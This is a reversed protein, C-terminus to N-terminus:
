FGDKSKPRVSHGVLRDWLPYSPGKNSDYKELKGLSTLNGVGIILRRINEGVPHGEKCYFFILSKREELKGFVHESLAIQREKGFVWPSPFPPNADKPLPEVIKEEIQRQERRLMWKFPVAIATYPPIELIRPRMGGHTEKCHKNNVYPHEFKRFWPEPNMFVGSEAKCAPLEEPAIENWIKGQISDEYEDNREERVRDLM